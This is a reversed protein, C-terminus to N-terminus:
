RAERYFVNPPYRIDIYEFMSKAAEAGHDAVTKDWFSALDAFQEELPQRTTFYVVTQGIYLEYEGDGKILVASIPFDRERVLAYFSQAAAFESSTAIYSGINLGNTSLSDALNAIYYRNYDTTTSAPAIKFILGLGDVFYCPQVSAVQGEQSASELDPLGDCVIAEPSKETVRVEISRLGTRDIEFVDIQPFLEAVRAVLERKPFILINSRSFLGLRNGQIVGDALRRVSEAEPADLGSVSVQEVHLAPLRTFASLATLGAAIILVILVVVFASRWRKKKAFPASHKTALRRSQM